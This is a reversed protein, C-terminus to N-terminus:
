FCEDAVPRVYFESCSRPFLNSKGHSSMFSFCNFFFFFSFCFRQIVLALPLPLHSPYMHNSFFNDSLASEGLTKNAIIDPLASSFNFQSIFRQEQLPLQAVRKVCFLFFVYTRKSRVDVTWRNTMPKWVYTKVHCGSDVIM